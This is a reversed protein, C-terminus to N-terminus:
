LNYTVFKMTNNNKLIGITMYVTYQIFEMYIAQSIVDLGHQGMRSKALLLSCPSLYSQCVYHSGIGEYCM